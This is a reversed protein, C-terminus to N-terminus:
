KTRQIPKPVAGPKTVDPKPTEPRGDPKTSEAKKNVKVSKMIIGATEQWEQRMRRPCNFSFVLARKSQLLYQIYTYKIIPDKLEMDGKKGRILSEFEFYVFQKGNVEHVGESIIDVRDFMNYLSAKFFRQAIKSDTDPWQTASVNVSFDLQRDEDTYAALPARVSPYRENFDLDDMPHWAKPLQVSIGDAVKVRSLRPKDMSFFTLIVWLLFIRHVM